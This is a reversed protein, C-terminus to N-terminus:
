PDERLQPAFRAALKAILKEHLGGFDGNSLVAVVTRRAARESRHEGRDSGRDDHQRPESGNTTGWVFAEKGRARLDRMLRDSMSASTRPRHARSRRAPALVIVDAADFSRPTSSSSCTEAPEHQQAPEFLAWMRRQGFRMRLAELTVKVATPHHAFDDVVTVGGPEGVV